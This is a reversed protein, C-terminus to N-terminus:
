KARAAAAPLPALATTNTPPCLPHHHLSPPALSRALSHLETPGSPLVHGGSSGFRGHCQTFLCLVLEAGGGAMGRFTRAKARQGQSWAQLLTCLVFSLLHSHKQSDKNWDLARDSPLFFCKSLVAVIDLRKAAELNFLMM